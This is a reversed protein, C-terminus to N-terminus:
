HFYSGFRIWTTNEVHTLDRRLAQLVILANQKLNLHLTHCNATSYAYKVTILTRCVSPLSPASVDKHLVISTKQAKLIPGNDKHKHTHTSELGELGSGEGGDDAVQWCQFDEKSLPFFGSLWNLNEAEVAAAQANDTYSVYWKTM